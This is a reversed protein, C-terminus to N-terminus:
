WATQASEGTVHDFVISYHDEVFEADVVGAAARVTALAQGAFKERSLGFVGGLLSM